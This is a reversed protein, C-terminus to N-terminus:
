LGMKRNTSVSASVLQSQLPIASEKSEPNGIPPFAGQQYVIKSRMQFLIVISGPNLRVDEFQQFGIVALTLACLFPLTRSM